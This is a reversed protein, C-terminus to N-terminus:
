GRVSRRQGPVVPPSDAWVRLVDAMVDQDSPSYESSRGQRRRVLRHRCVVVGLLGAGFLLMGIGFRRTGADVSFLEAAAWDLWNGSRM